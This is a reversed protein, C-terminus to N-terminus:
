TSEFIEFEMLVLRSTQAEYEAHISRNMLRQLYTYTFAFTIDIQIADICSVYRLREPIACMTLPYCLKVQVGQM